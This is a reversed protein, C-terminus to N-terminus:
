AHGARGGAAHRSRAPLLRLTKLPPKVVHAVCPHYTRKASITAGSRVRGIIRVVVAGRGMGRMDITARRTRPDLLATRKGNVTLELRRLRYRRNSRGNLTM